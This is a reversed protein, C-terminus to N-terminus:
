SEPPAAEHLSPIIKRFATSLCYSILPMCFHVVLDIGTFVNEVDLKIKKLQDKAMNENEILCIDFLRCQHILLPVEVCTRNM